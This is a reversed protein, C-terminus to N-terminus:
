YEDDEDLYVTADVKVSNTSSDTTDEIELEQLLQAIAANPDKINKVEMNLEDEEDDLDIDNFIDKFSNTSSNFKDKLLTYKKNIERIAKEPFNLGSIIIDIYEEQEPDYQIHRPIDIPQGAYRKVVEFKDDIALQTKEDANIIVGILKSSTDYELCKINDFAEQIKLNFTDQNKVGSLSIHQIDMYGTMNILKRLDADDINQVCPIMNTGKLISVQQAFEKNAAKEASIYNKTYDLFEENKITHLIVNDNMGKFFKLTNKTGKLEDQFGILAFVHVPLNMNQFVKVILPTAGSGTGGETSTVLVVAKTDPEIMEGFDIKGSTIANLIAERGKGPEKACGGLESPFQIIMEPHNRKIDDPIDKITTNLLRIQNSSLVKDELLQLAAKNGGAGIGLCVLEM